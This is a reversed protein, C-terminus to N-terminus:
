RRRRRRWPRSRTPVASLQATATGAGHVGSPYHEWAVPWMRSVLDVVQDPADYLFEPIIEISRVSAVIAAVLALYIAFRGLRQGPTFRQWTRDAVAMAPAASAM